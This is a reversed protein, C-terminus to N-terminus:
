IEIEVEPEIKLVLINPNVKKLEEDFNGYAMWSIPPFFDDYHHPIVNKPEIMGALKALYEDSNSRGAVPALFYDIDKPLKAIEEKLYGGSGFHLFKKGQEFEFLYGLVQGARWKFVELTGLGTLKKTKFIDGSFIKKLILSINFRIHKSKIVKVSFDPSFDFVDGAKVAHVNKKAVGRKNVLAKSTPISCYIKIDTGDVIQPLDFAHDFHGHSLFIAEGEKINAITTHQLQPIANKPRSIYPDIFVKHNPTNIEFGATLLWKIKM